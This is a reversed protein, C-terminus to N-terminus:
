ASQSSGMPEVDLVCPVILPETGPMGHVTGSLGEGDDALRSKVRDLVLSAM